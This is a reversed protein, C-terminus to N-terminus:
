WGSFFSAVASGASSLGSGIATPRRTGAVPRHRRDRHELRRSVADTAGTWTDGVFDTTATGGMQSVAGSAGHGLRQRGLRHQHGLRRRGLGDLCGVGCSRQERAVPLGSRADREQLRLHGPWHGRRFRDRSGWRWGRRGLASSGCRRCGRGHGFRGIQDHTAVTRPCTAARSPARFWTRPRASRRARTRTSAPKPMRAWRMPPSTASGVRAPSATASMSARWRPMRGRATGPPATTTWGARRCIWQWVAADSSAHWGEETGLLGSNIGFGGEYGYTLGSNQNVVSNGYAFASPRDKDPRSGIESERRYSM